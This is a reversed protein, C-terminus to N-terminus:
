VGHSILPHFDATKLHHNLNTDIRDLIEFEFSNYKEMNNLQKSSSVAKCENLWRVFIQQIGRGAGM